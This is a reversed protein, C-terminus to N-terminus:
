QKGFDVLTSDGEGAGQAEDFWAALVSKTMQSNHHNILGLFDFTGEEKLNTVTWDAYPVVMCQALGLNALAKVFNNKDSANPNPKM